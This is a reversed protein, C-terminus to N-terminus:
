RKRISDLSLDKAVAGRKVGSVTLAMQKKLWPIQYMVPFTTNRIGGLIKSHSQYYPTLRRSMWQYFHVPHLRHQHYRQWLENYDKSQKIADSIAWADLLAMNTGQGLQPSAAHAADGLVGINDQGFKNLVVDRYNASLWKTEEPVNNVWRAVSPWRDMILESLEQANINADKSMESTPMSWFVSSLPTTSKESESHLQGTPLIGLMTDAGDYFQHLIKPDLFDCEPVIAWIAGWPYPKNLKVWDKPCLTSRAGNCILTLDYHAQESQGNHTYTVTSLNDQQTVANVEWGMRWEIPLGHLANQLLHCLTARHVGLGFWSDSCQNYFTDVVKKGSPLTGTLGSVYACVDQAKELLGMHELVAIGSPQLLLGAGVPALSNVSEYVTIDHGQKALMHASSLGATGAGIIAIRQNKLTM